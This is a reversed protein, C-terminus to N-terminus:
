SHTMPEDEEIRAKDWIDAGPDSDVSNKIFDGRKAKELAESRSAAEVYGWMPHNHRWEVRYSKTKKMEGGERCNPHRTQNTRLALKSTQALIFRVVEGVDVGAAFMPSKDALAISIPNGQSVNGGGFCCFNQAVDAVIQYVAEKTNM